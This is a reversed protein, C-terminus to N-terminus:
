DWDVGEYPGEPGVEFHETIYDRPPPPPAREGHSSEARFTRAPLAVSCRLGPRPAADHRIAIQIADTM